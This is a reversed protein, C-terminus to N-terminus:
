RLFGSTTSASCHNGPRLRELRADPLTPHTRVRRPSQERGAPKGQGQRNPSQQVPRVRNGTCAPCRGPTRHVRLTLWRSHTPIGITQLHTSSAMSVAKANTSNGNTNNASSISSNPVITAVFNFFRLYDLTIPLPLCLCTLPM